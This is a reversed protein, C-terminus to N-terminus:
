NQCELSLSQRVESTQVLLLVNSPRWLTVVIWIICKNTKSILFIHKKHSGVANPVELINLKITALVASTPYALQSM